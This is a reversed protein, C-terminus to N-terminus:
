EDNDFDQVPMLEVHTIGLESLHDIGTQIQEDDPLRTGTEAWGPYLGAQKVGSSPAITFDRVHMEYIVADTPSALAPAHTVPHTLPTIRARSSNAVSNVAYPDLIERSHKADKQDLLFTYFKGLLDGRVSTEWMNNPQQRLSFVSRGEDGAPQDYLVVSVNKSSPAFLRFTTGQGTYLAGLGSKIQDRDAERFSDVEQTKAMNPTTAAPPSPPQESEAAALAAEARVLLDTATIPVKRRGGMYDAEIENESIAIVKVTATAPVKVSGVVNGHSVAPFQFPERLIVESPWHEKHQKLWAIADPRISPAPPQEPSQDTTTETHRQLFGRAFVTLRNATQQPSEQFRYMLYVFGAAALILLLLLSSGCGCGRRKKILPKAAGPALPQLPVHMPPRPGTTESRQEDAPESFPDPVIVPQGCTPCHITQGAGANEVELSQSCTPCEFIM